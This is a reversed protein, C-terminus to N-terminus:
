SHSHQQPNSVARTQNEYIVQAKQIETNDCFLVAGPVIYSSLAHKNVQILGFLM